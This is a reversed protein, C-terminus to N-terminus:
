VKSPCSAPEWLCLCSECHAHFHLTMLPQRPLWSSRQSQVWLLVRSEALSLPTYRFVLRPDHLTTLRLQRGSLRWRDKRRYDGGSIFIYVSAPAYFNMRLYAALWGLGISRGRMMIGVCNSALLRTGVNM